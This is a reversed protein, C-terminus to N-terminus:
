LAIGKAYFTPVYLIRNGNECATKDLQRLTELQTHMTELKEPPFLVELDDAVVKWESEIEAQGIKRKWQGGLVGVEISALGAEHFLRTLRRGMCPEAGQQRLSALQWEGLIALEPPYDIRGGYDPEALALVVGGPRTVRVMEALLRAPDRVWLFLFHCLSIDFIQSSFPIDLADGLLFSAQLGLKQAYGINCSSIDLGYVTGQSIDVLEAILAGTGCGVELVRRAASLGAEDYVYRRLDQTWRAQEMYRAHWQAPDLSM